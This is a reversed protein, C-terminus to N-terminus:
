QFSNPTWHNAHAKKRLNHGLTGIPISSAKSAKRLLMRKSQIEQLATALTEQSYGKYKRVGPARKYTYVM